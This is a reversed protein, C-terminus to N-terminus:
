DANNIVIVVQVNNIVIVVQVKAVMTKLIM